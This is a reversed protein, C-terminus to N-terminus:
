ANTSWAMRLRVLDLARRWSARNSRASAPAPTSHGHLRRVGHAPRPVCCLAARPLAADGRRALGAGRGLRGRRVSVAARAREVAVAGLAPHRAHPQHPLNHTNRNIKARVTKPALLPISAAASRHVRVAPSAYRPDHKKKDLWRTLLPARCPGRRWARRDGRLRSSVRPFLVSQGARARRRAGSWLPCQAGDVLRALWAGRGRLFAM